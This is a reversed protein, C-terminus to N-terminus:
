SDFCFDGILNDVTTVLETVLTINHSYYCFDTELETVLWWKCCFMFSFYPFRQVLTVVLNCFLVDFLVSCRVLM